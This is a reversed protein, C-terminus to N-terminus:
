DFDATEKNDIFYEFELDKLSRLIRIPKNKILIDEIGNFSNFVTWYDKEMLFTKQEKNLIIIKTKLSVEDSPISNIFNDFNYSYFSQQYNNAYYYTKTGHDIWFNGIFLPGFFDRNIFKLLFDPVQNKFNRKAVETKTKKLLQDTLSHKKYPDKLYKVAEKYLKDEYDGEALDEPSNAMLYEDIGPFGRSKVIKESAMDILYSNKVEEFISKREIDALRDFEDWYNKSDQTIGQQKLQKEIKMVHFNNRRYLIDSTEQEVINKEVRNRTIILEPSKEFDIEKSHFFLLKIVEFDKNYNNPDLFKALEGRAEKYNKIIYELDKFM